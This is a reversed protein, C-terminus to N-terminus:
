RRGIDNVSANREPGGTSSLPRRYRSVIEIRSSRLGVVANSPKIQGICAEMTKGVNRMSKTMVKETEPHIYGKM